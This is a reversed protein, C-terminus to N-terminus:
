YILFHLKLVNKLGFLDIGENLPLKKLARKKRILLSFSHISLLDFHFLFDMFSRKVLCYKLFCNKNLLKLYM